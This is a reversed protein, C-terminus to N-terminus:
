KKKLLLLTIDDTPKARNAFIRAEEVINEIQKELPLDSFKLFTRSLRELGFEERNRNMTEALGDTYLLLIDGKEVTQMVSEFHVPFDAIGIVGTEDTNGRPISILKNDNAKLLIVNPHGANVFEIENGKVRALVGTLYNEVNGKQLIIRDNITYLVDNLALKKGKNFEDNIINKVLMTVLGSSIGHGSVDFLGFGDLTDKNFYFDYLDGSVGAMPQNYYAVEFNKFEPLHLSYFSKQVFSALEIEKDAREVEYKLHSNIEELSSNARTLEETRNQVLKELNSNLFDVRNCQSVFFAILMALFIFDTLQWGMVITLSFIDNTAFYIIATILISLLVPVFGFLLQLIKKRNKKFNMFIMVFAYLMQITTAIYSIGLMIFFDRMTASFAIFFCPGITIASRFIRWSLSEKHKIYDRMFSVAFYSSLLSAIGRFIKEYWLYSFGIHYIIPYEGICLSVLFLSSCINMMAFSLYEKDQRRLYFVGLYMIGIMFMVWSCIIHLKSNVFDFSKEKELVYSTTSIFPKKYVKGESEVYIHFIIENQYDNCLVYPITYSTSRGGISFIQPPFFGTSGIYNGNVYLESAVKVNGMFCRLTKNELELPISFNNKLYISGKRLPLSKKISSFDKIDFPIYTGHIGTVSYSWGTELPIVTDENKQCSSLLTLCLIIFIFYFRYIKKGMKSEAIFNSVRWFKFFNGLFSQM